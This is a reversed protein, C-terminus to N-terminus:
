SVVIAERAIPRCLVLQGDVFGEEALAIAHYTGASAPLARVKGKDAATGTDALVLVAGRSGTGKAKIRINASPELPRCVANAGSAAGEELVFPTRDTNANPLSVGSSGLELLYGEKGTLDEAAPFHILGLKTNSQVTLSM